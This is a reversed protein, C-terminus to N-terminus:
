LNLQSRLINAQELVFRKNVEATIPIHTVFADPAELSLVEESFVDIDGNIIIGKLSLGYQKLVRISLMTHNISGLYHKVVLIVETDLQKILDIIFKKKTLPVMLGGAGEIILPRLTNPLAINTLNIEVGDLEASKHPSYPQTLRYSESHFATTKNTILSKVKFTDSSDLDGSQVPKWYDAQLCETLIAAIVTKGIGTDIGTVFWSKM